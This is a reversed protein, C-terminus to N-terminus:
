DKRPLRFHQISNCKEIRMNKLKVIPDRMSFHVVSMVASVAYLHTKMYTYPIAHCQATRSIGHITVDHTVYMVIFDGAPPRHRALKLPWYSDPSAIAVMTHIHAGHTDLQRSVRVTSLWIFVCFSDHAPAGSPMKAPLPRLGLCFQKLKWSM